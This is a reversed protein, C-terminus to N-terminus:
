GADVAQDRGSNKAQRLAADARAFLDQPAEGATAVAFGSSAPVALGAHATQRGVAARVRQVVTAATAGAVDSLLLGFEDGGLRALYDHARVGAALAAAAQRLVDDGAAHGRTDNVAKFHDLDFLALCLGGAEDAARAVRRPFEADWARRNPLGTLPDSLALQSLEGHRRQDERRGRRLRVIQVLLTVALRLERDTADAPLAVDAPGAANVTVVGFEGAALLPAWPLATDDRPTADSTVIVDLTAADCSAVDTWLRGGTDALAQRWRQRLEADDTLLLIGPARTM